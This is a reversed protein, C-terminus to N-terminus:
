CRQTVHQRAATTGQEAVRVQGSVRGFLDLEYSAQFLPQATTQTIPTGAPSVSRSPGANVGLSLTPYRQVRAIEEQARAERVRATAIAVNDNHALAQEVLQALVPDGFAEWRQREIQAVPGLEARWQV